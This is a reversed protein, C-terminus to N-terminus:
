EMDDKMTGWNHAGAGDRKDVPKVGRFLPLELNTEFLICFHQQVHLIIKM